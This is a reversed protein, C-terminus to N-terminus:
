RAMFSRLARVSRSEGVGSFAYVSGDLDISVGDINGEQAFLALEEIQEWERKTIAKEGRSIGDVPMIKGPIHFTEVKVRPFHNEIQDCVANVIFSKSHGTHLAYLATSSDTGIVVRLRPGQRQLFKNMARAIGTPEAWASKMRVLNDHDSPGWHGHAEQSFGGQDIFAAGWGDASTDCIAFATPLDDPDVVHPSAELIDRRWEHLTREVAPCLEPAAAPWLEPAESLFRGILSQARLALFYKALKMDLTRSAYRLIAFIAAINKFSRKKGALCDIIKAKTKDALQVTKKVYDYREGLWGHQQVVLPQLLKRAADRKESMTTLKQIVTIDIENIKVNVEACRIAFEVGADLVDKVTPAIFRANDVYPEKYAISQYNLLQETTEHAIKVSQKAGMPMVCMRYTKGGFSFCFYRRVQPDLEFADFFSVFDLDLAWEGKLVAKHRDRFPLFSVKDADPAYANVDKPHQVVRWREKLLELVKHVSCQGLPSQNVGDPVEEIKGLSELKAIDAGALRAFAKRTSRAKTYLNPDTLWEYAKRVVDVQQPDFSPLSM